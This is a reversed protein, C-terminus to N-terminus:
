NEPTQNTNDSFRGKIAAVITQWDLPLTEPLNYRNKALINSTGETIVIREAKDRHAYLVCDAWEIFAPSFAQPIDPAATRVDYGEPTTLTRNAAHALLLIACGKSNIANLMPLLDRYIVNQVIERAKFFGGHSGGLTSTGDKPAKPDMEHVVHETIRQIMWDITDVAVVSPLHEADTTALEALWKRMEPWTELYPTRSLGDIAGAGNECDILLAEAQAALTTKGVGPQGYVILKPPSPKSSKILTDLLGM